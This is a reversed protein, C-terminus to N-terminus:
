EANNSYVIWIWNWGGNDESLFKRRSIWFFFIFLTLCKYTAHFGSSDVDFRAAFSLNYCEVSSHIVFCRFSISPARLFRASSLLIVLFGPPLYCFLFMFCLTDSPLIYYCHLPFSLLRCNFYNCSSLSMYKVAPLLSQM